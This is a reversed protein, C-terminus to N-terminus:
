LPLGSTAPGRDSHRSQGLASMADAPGRGVITSYSCETEGLGPPADQAALV